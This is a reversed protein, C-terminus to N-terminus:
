LLRRLRHTGIQMQHGIQNGYLRNDLCFKFTANGSGVQMFRAAPGEDLFSPSFWEVQM